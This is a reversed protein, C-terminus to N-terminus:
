ERGLTPGGGLFVVGSFGGDAPLSLWTSSLKRARIIRGVVAEAELVASLGAAVGGRRTAPRGEVAPELERRALLTLLEFRALVGDALVESTASAGLDVGGAM